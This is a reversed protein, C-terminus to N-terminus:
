RIRHLQQFLNTVQWFSSNMNISLQMVVGPSPCVATWLSMFPWSVDFIGRSVLLRPGILNLSGMRFFCYSHNSSIKYYFFIFLGESYPHIRQFNSRLSKNM